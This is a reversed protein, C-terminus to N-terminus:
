QKRVARIPSLFSPSHPCYFYNSVRLTWDAIEEGGEGMFSKSNGGLIGRGWEGGWRETPSETRTKGRILSAINVAQPMGRNNARVYGGIKAFGKGRGFSAKILGRWRNGQVEHLLEKFGSGHLWPEGRPTFSPSNSEIENQRADSGALTSKWTRLLTASIPAPELVAM